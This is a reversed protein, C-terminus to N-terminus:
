AEHPQPLVELLSVRQAANIYRYRHREIQLDLRKFTLEFLRDEAPGTPPSADTPVQMVLTQDRELLALTNGRVNELHGGNAAVRALLYPSKIDLISAGYNKLDLRVSGDNAGASTSLVLIPEYSANSQAELRDAQARLSRAQDSAAEVTSALEKKQVYFSRVVWLVALPAVAASVFAAVHGWAELTLRAHPDYPLGHRMVALAIVALWAATAVWAFGEHRSFWSQKPM